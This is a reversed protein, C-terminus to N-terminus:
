ELIKLEKNLSLDIQEQQDNPLKITILKSLYEIGQLSSIEKKSNNPVLVELKDLAQKSIQEEEKAKLEVETIVTGLRTDTLYNSNDDYFNNDYNNYFYNNIEDKCRDRMICLLVGRRLNEDPFAQKYTVNYNLEKLKKFKINTKKNVIFFSSVMILMMLFGILYKIKKM